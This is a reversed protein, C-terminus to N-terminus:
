SSTKFNVIQSSILTESLKRGSNGNEIVFTCNVFVVDELVLPQNTYHVEVNEFVVHRAFRGDINLAGGTFFLRPPGTSKGENENKGLLEYRAALEPPVSAPIDSGIPLAKGPVVPGIYYHDLGAGSLKRFPAAGRADIKNLATRYSVFDLATEWAEPQAVSTEIFSKAAQEVTSIPIPTRGERAMALLSKAEKISKESGPNAIVQSTRLALLSSEIQTLRDATQTRFTTEEKVHTFSQVLAGITIAAMALFATVFTIPTGIERILHGTKRWGHPRLSEKLSDIAASIAKAIKAEISKWEEQSIKPVDEDITWVEGAGDLPGPQSLVASHDLCEVPTGEASDGVKLISGEFSLENHRANVSSLQLIRSDEATLETPWHSVWGGAQNRGREAAPGKPLLGLIQLIPAIFRHKLQDKSARTQWNGVFRYHSNQLITRM